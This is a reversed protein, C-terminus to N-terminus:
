HHPRAGKSLFQICFGRYDVLIVSYKTMASRCVVATGDGRILGIQRNLGAAL